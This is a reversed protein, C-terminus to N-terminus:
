GADNGCPGTRHPIRDSLPACVCTFAPCVRPNEPDNELWEVISADFGREDKCSVQSSASWQSDDSEKEPTEPEKELSRTSTSKSAYGLRDQRGIGKAWPSPDKEDLFKLYRKGSLLRVLHGFATDQILAAM